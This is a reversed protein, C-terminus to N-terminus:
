LNGYDIGVTDDLGLINLIREDVEEDVLEEDRTPEYVVLAGSKDEPKDEVKEKVEQISKLLDDLGEPITEELSEEPSETVVSEESEAIFHM